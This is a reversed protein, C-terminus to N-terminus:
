TAITLGVEEPETEPKKRFIALSVSVNRFVTSPYLTRLSWLGHRSSLLRAIM